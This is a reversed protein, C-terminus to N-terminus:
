EFVVQVYEPPSQITAMDHELIKLGDEREEIEKFGGFTFTVLMMRNRGNNKFEALFRAGAQKALSLLHNLLITGVGRSMVRCSMLLLKLRWAETGKEVLALGIKGYTGYKDTLSAVLLLHDDSRRLADLEEYSYTYGTTNLQNTRVTLEEARKLDEERCPSLTFTMDLSALFEESPGEFGAEAQNRAVDAQYMKRRLASEDTLFRPMLEPREILGPLEAVDYVLVEPASHAVEEREFPQDDIFAVADLGINISEAIKKLNAAKSSWNIQPYLFYEAVGLEELKAWAADHDNKSAVSHLIGRRDLEKLLELVGPQLQVDDGELLTGQWLTNDLDWALVKIVRPKASGATTETQSRDSTTMVTM